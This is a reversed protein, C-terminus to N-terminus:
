TKSRKYLLLFIESVFFVLVFLDVIIGGVIMMFSFETIMTPLVIISIAFLGFCIICFVGYQELKSITFYYLNPPFSVIITLIRNKLLAGVIGVIGGVLLFSGLLLYTWTFM